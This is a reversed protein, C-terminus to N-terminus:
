VGFGDSSCGEWGEAPLTPNDMVEIFYHEGLFGSLGGSRPECIVVGCSQCSYTQNQNSYLDESDFGVQELIMSNSM